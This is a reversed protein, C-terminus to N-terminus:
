SSTKYYFYSRSSWVGGMQDDITFIVTPAFNKILRILENAVIDKNFVSDFRESPIPMWSYRVTDLDNRYQHSHLNIFGAECGIHQCAKVHHENRSVDDTIFSLVKIDWGSNSLKSMTGAMACMDDDHAVIVMAKKVQVNELYVDKPYTETAAFKELEEISPKNSCSNILLTLITILTWIIYKM